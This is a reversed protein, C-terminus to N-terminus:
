DVKKGCNECFLSNPKLKQGCGLCFREETNNANENTNNDGIPGNPSVVVLNDYQFDKSLGLIPIMIGGFLTGLIGISIPSKHMKKGLNYFVFFNVAYGAITTLWSIEELGIITVISGSVAILFYWWNLGSIEILVYTSYYPILSEWGKKGAKKFLKWLSVLYLVLYAILFIGIVLLLIISGGIIYDLIESDYM